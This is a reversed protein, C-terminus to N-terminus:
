DFHETKGLKYRDLSRRFAGFADTAVIEQTLKATTLKRRFEKVTKSALDEFNQIIRTDKIGNIFRVSRKPKWDLSPLEMLMATLYAPDGYSHKILLDWVEKDPKKKREGPRGRVAAEVYCGKAYEIAAQPDKIRQICIEMGGVPDGGRKFLFAAERFMGQDVAAQRVDMLRFNRNETVFEMTKPSKFKVYMLALETGNEERDFLTHGSEYLRDLYDLKFREILEVEEDPNQSQAVNDLEANIQRLVQGPEIETIHDLLFAAFTDPYARLIAGFHSARDGIIFKYQSYKAIDAFFGPYPPNMSLATQFASVHDDHVHYLRMLPALFGPDRESGRKIENLLVDAQFADDPLKDFRECFPKAPGSSLVKLMETRERINWDPSELPVTPAIVELMGREKFFVVINQWHESEAFEECVSVAREEMEDNLLMDVLRLILLLCQDRPLVPRLERFKALGQEMQNKRLFYQIRELDTLRTISYIGGGVALLFDDKWPCLAMFRNPDFDDLVLDEGYTEDGCDIEIRPQPAAESFVLKATMEENTAILQAQTRQAVKQQGKPGIMIDYIAGGFDITLAEPSHILFTGRPHPSDYFSAPPTIHLTKDPVGKVMRTIKFFRPSSWAIVDNKWVITEVDREDRALEVSEPHPNARGLFGISPRLRIVQGNFDVFACSLQSLSKADPDIACTVVGCGHTHQRIPQPNGREWVRINGDISAALLLDNSRDFSLASVRM